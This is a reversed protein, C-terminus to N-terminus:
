RPNTNPNAENAITGELTTTDPPLTNASTAGTKADDPVTKIDTQRETDAQTVPKTAIQGVPSQGAAETALPVSTASGDNPATVKQQDDNAEKYLDHVAKDM